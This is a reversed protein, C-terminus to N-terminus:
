CSVVPRGPAKDFEYGFFQIDPRYTKRVLEITEPTYYETYHAHTSPNKHPLNAEVGILRCIEAFDEELHEFRGVFDVMLEGDEDCVWKKQFGYNGDCRWRVYGDFTNFREFPADPFREQNEVMYRWLSVVWDWPNRVIAFSFYSDFRERGMKEAVERATVHGHYGKPAGRPRFRSVGIKTAYNHLRWRMKTATHPYLARRISTGANKYIHIFIFRHPNSLLM